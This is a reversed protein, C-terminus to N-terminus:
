IKGGKMLLNPDIKEPDEVDIWFPQSSFPGCRVTLMSLVQVKALCVLVDGSVAVTRNV